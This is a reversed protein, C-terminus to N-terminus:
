APLVRGGDTRVEIVDTDAGSAAAAPVSSSQPSEGEFSETGLQTLANRVAEFGMTYTRPGLRHMVKRVYYNGNYSRGLGKITVLKKSRLARGYVLGNLKGTAKVWWGHRRLLGQVFDNMQAETAAGQRRVVVRTQELQAQGRLDSLPTTGLSPLGSATASAIQPQGTLPDIRRMIAETPRTGDVEVHFDTCNTEDGFNVAIVKQPTGSLDPSRFYGKGGLMYFEYGKRRALERLFRHDTARQVISPPPGAAATGGEEPLVAIFGYRPAEIIEKAVEEYTKGTWVKCRELINMAYSGDVGSIKVTMTATQGNATPTVHSIYGDIITDARDKFAAIITIRNWPRLNEDDLHPWAGDDKKCLSLLIEFSSGEDLDENVTISQICKYLDNQESGNVRVVASFLRDPATPM